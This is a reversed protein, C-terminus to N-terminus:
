IERLRIGWESVVIFRGEAKGIVDKIMDLKEEPNNTLTRFLIVGASTKHLRFILEGFDKDDTIIVRREKEARSLIKEDLAGRMVNGVFVADHGAQNLLKAFRDGLNEDVLFRM